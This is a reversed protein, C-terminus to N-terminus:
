QMVQVYASNVVNVTINKAPANMTIASVYSIGSALVGWTASLTVADSQSDMYSSVNADLLRNDTLDVDISLSDGPKNYNSFTLRVSQNPQPEVSLNGTQSAEQLKAPDPPAYSHMLAAASQM